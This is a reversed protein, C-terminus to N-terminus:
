QEAGLRQLHYKVDDDCPISHAIDWLLCRILKCELRDLEVDPEDVRGDGREVADPHGSDRLGCLSNHFEVPRGNHFWRLQKEGRDELLVEHQEVSHSPFLEREGNWEGGPTPEIGDWFSRRLFKCRLEVLDADSENINRRCWEASIFRFTGRAGRLGNHLEV